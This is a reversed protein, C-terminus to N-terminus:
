QRPQRIRAELNSRCGETVCLSRIRAKDEPSLTLRPNEFLANTLANEIREPWPGRGSRLAVLEGGRGRWEGEWRALRELLPEQDGASKTGGPEGTWGDYLAELAPRIWPRDLIPWRYELLYSQQAPPVALFAAAAEKPNQALADGIALASEADLDVNLKRLAAGLEKEKWGRKASGSMWRADYEKRLAEYRTRRSAYDGTGRPMELLCRLYSLREVYSAPLPDGADVKSEMEEVILARHPSAILGAFLDFTTREDVAPYHALLALAAGKTGLHRLVTVGQRAEGGSGGRLAVSAREVEREAWRKPPSVIDIVVPDASVVPAPRRSHRELRHSSVRVEYRGPKAFRVWENLVVQIRFPSGDLSHLGRLGGGIFGGFIDGRFYDDLPDDFGEGPVLEYTESALRGSRDYSETSWYFDSDARGTFELDLRIVEGMAYTAKGSSLLVRLSPERASGPSAALGPSRLGSAGLLALLLVGATLGM